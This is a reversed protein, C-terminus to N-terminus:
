TAFVGSSDTKGAIDTTWEKTILRTVEEGSKLLNWNEDVIMNLNWANKGFEKWYTIGNMEPLSFFFKYMNKILTAQMAPDHTHDRLEPNNL